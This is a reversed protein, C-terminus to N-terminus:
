AGGHIYVMVPRAARADADPTWVNLSLCDEAFALGEGGADGGQPCSPAFATARVPDRAAPEAVPAMFRAARGYRIGKFTAVGGDRTGLFTGAPCTARAAGGQGRAATALGLALGGALVSRRTTM